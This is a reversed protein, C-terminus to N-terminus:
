IGLRADIKGKLKLLPPYTSNKPDRMLRDVIIKADTISGSNLFDTAKIYDAYAEPSLAGEVNGGLLLQISTRLQRANANNPNSTLSQNLLALTDKYTEPVDKKFLGLAQQYIRNSEAIKEPPLPRPKVGLDYELNQITKALGADNPRFEQINKLGIYAERKKDFQPSKAMDTYLTIQNNLQAPFEKEDSVKLIKLDLVQAVRYYPYLSLVSNINQRADALLQNGEKTNGSQLKKQAELYNQNALYLYSSVVDYSPDTSLLERSGSVTLANKSLNLYYELDSSYTDGPHNEKWRQDAQTFKQNAQQIDGSNFSVIGENILGEVQKVIKTNIAAAIQTQLQAIEGGVVTRKRIADNEEFQLSKGYADIAQTLIDSTGEPDAKAMVVARDYLQDALKQQAVATNHQDQAARELRSNAEAEAAAKSSVDLAANLVTGLAPSGAVYPIEARWVAVKASIDSRLTNLDKDAARLGELARLPYKRGDATGDKLDVAQERQRIAAALDPSFDASDLEAIRVAYGIDKRRLDSLFVTFRVEMAGASEAAPGVDSVLRAQRVLEDARRRWEEHVDEAETMRTKLQSRSSVLTQRAANDSIPMQALDMRYSALTQYAPSEVAMEQFGVAQGGLKKLRRSEEDTVRWGPGPQIDATELSLAQVSMTTRLPIDSFAIRAGRYNGADFLAKARSFSVPLQETAKAAAEAVIPDWLRRVALVIGETRDKRGMLIDTIYQLFIGGTNDGTQQRISKAAADIAAAEHRLAAEYGIVERIVSLDSEYRALVSDDVSSAGILSQSEAEAAQLATESKRIAEATDMIGSVTNLISKQVIDGYGAELFSKRQLDFGAADPNAMPQLYLAIADTYKKDGLLKAAEDMLATFRKANFVLETGKKAVTILNTTTPNPHPDLAQLESILLLGKEVDGQVYLVDNLEALKENYQKRIEMIQSVLPRTEDRLDPNDREIQAILKLAQDYNKENILRKVEELSTEQQGISFGPVPGIVALCFVLTLFTLSRPRMTAHEWMM